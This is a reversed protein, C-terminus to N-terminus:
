YSVFAPYNIGLLFKCYVNRNEELAFYAAPNTHDFSPDRQRLESLILHNVIGIHTLNNSYHLFEKYAREVPDRLIFYKDITDDSSLEQKAAKIDKANHLKKYKGSHNKWLFRGLARGGTHPVHFFWLM